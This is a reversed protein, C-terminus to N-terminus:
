ARPTHGFRSVLDDRTRTRPDDEGMRTTLVEELRSTDVFV